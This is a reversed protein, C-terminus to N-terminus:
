IMKLKKLKKFRVKKLPLFRKKFFGRIEKIDTEIFIMSNEDLGEISEIINNIIYIKNLTIDDFPSNTKTDLIDIFIVKDGNKM